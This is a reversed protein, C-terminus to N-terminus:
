VIYYTQSFGLWSFFENSLQCSIEPIHFMVDSYAKWVAQLLVIHLNHKSVFNNQWVSHM